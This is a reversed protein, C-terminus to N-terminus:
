GARRRRMAPSRAECVRRGHDGGECLRRGIGPLEANAYSTLHNAANQPKASSTSSPPSRSPPSTTGPASAPPSPPHHAQHPAQRRPPRALPQGPVQRTRACVRPRRPRTCARGPRRPRHRRAPRRRPRHHQPRYHRRDQATEVAVQCSARDPDTGPVSQAAEVMVTRLAQYVALLAWMEQKVGAPDRCRLVRGNLLTHRLAFYAVEHEWREHYLAMLAAAPFARHDTLTTILRYAGSYSTGDDCTVTVAAAIVRVKEGQQHGDPLVRRAPAAAGPPRRTATLRVLFQASRDRRGRGPFPRRRLGPRGAAADDRGAPCCSAPGPRRASRASSGFVAGLLARTGTEVLTM